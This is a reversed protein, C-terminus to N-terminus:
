TPSLDRERQLQAVNQLRQMYRIQLDYGKATLTLFAKRRDSAAEHQEILGERELQRIHRRVAAETECAGDTLFLALLIEFAIQPPCRFLEYELELQAMRQMLNTSNHPM